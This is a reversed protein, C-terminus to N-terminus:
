TKFTTQVHQRNVTFIHQSLNVVKLKQKFV